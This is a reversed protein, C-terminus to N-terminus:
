GACAVDWTLRNIGYEETGGSADGSTRHNAVMRALTIARHIPQTPTTVANKAPQSPKSLGRELRISPMVKMPNTANKTNMALM